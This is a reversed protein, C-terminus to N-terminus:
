DGSTIIGPESGIHSKTQSNEIIIRIRIVLSLLYVQTGQTRFSLSRGEIGLSLSITRHGDAEGQPHPNFVAEIALHVKTKFHDVTKGSGVINVIDAGGIRRIGLGM